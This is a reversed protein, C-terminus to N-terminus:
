GKGGGSVAAKIEPYIGVPHAGRARLDAVLQLERDFTHVRFEEGASPFRGAFVPRGAADTREHVKLM